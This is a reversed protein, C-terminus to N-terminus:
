QPSEGVKVKIQPSEGVLKHQTATTETGAGVAGAAAAAESAVSTSTSASAAAADLAVLAGGHQSFCIRFHAGDIVAPFHHAPLASPEPCNDHVASAGAGTGGFHDM